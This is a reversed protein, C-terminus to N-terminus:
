TNLTHGKEKHTQEREREKEIPNDLHGPLSIGLCPIYKIFYGKKAVCKNKVTAEPFFIKFWLHSHLPLFRIWWLLVTPSIYIYIHVICLEDQTNPIMKTLM